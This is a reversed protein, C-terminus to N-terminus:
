HPKKNTKRSRSPNTGLGFESKAEVISTASQDGAPTAPGGQSLPDPTGASPSEPSSNKRQAGTLDLALVAQNSLNLWSLGPADAGPVKKAQLDSDMAFLEREIQEIADFPVEGAQRVFPTDLNEWGALLLSLAAYPSYRIFSSRQTALRRYPESSAMVAEELALFDVLDQGVLQEAKIDLFAQELRPMQREADEPSWLLALSDRMAQNLMEQSPFALNNESCIEQWRRRLTWTSPRLIFVPPAPANALTPPTYRQLQDRSVPIIM